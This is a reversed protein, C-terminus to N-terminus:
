RHNKQHRIRLLVRGVIQNNDIWGMTETSSSDSHEGVLQLKKPNFGSFNHIRKLILGFVPHEVLVAQGKKPKLLPSNLCVVLDQDLFSPYM